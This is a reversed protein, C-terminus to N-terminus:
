SARSVELRCLLDFLAASSAEFNGGSKFLLRCEQQSLVVPLKTENKLSPLKIVQDGMDHIRYLYRLGYVTHKFYSKSPRQGMMLEQLYGNIQEMTLDIARMKFHLSIRAVCRGYNVLTSSSLGGLIVKQEMLGYMTSFGLVEAKAQRILRGDKKKEM